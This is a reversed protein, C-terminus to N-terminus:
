IIKFPAHIFNTLMTPNKFTQLCTSSLNIHRMWYISHQIFEILKNCSLFPYIFNVSFHVLSINKISISPYILRFTVIFLCKFFFHMMVLRLFCGRSIKNIFNIQLLAHIFINKTVNIKTPQVWISIVWETFRINFM